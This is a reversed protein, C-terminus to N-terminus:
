AEDAPRVEYHVHPWADPATEDDIQSRFPFRRASEALVSVGAEVRDGATVAVGTVHLVVVRLEPADDPVLVIRRDAHKGYVHFSEAVEVTGTIPSRVPEDDVLVIDVASTAPAPRGRSPLVRPEDGVPTMAFSTRNSAEHFGHVVVAHSPLRLALDGVQAFVETRDARDVEEGEGAGDAPEADAGDAAEADAGDAAEAPAGAAEPGSSAAPIAAPAQGGVGVAGDGSRAGMALREGVMALAHEPDTAVEDPPSTLGLVLLAGLV